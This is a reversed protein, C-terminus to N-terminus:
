ILSDRLGSLVGKYVDRMVFCSASLCIMLHLIECIDQKAKTHRERVCIFVVLKQKKFHLSFAFLKSSAMQCLQPLIISTFLVLVLSRFIRGVDWWRGIKITYIDTTLSDNPRYPPQFFFTNNIVTLWGTVHWSPLSQLQSQDTSCICVKAWATGNVYNCLAMIPDHIQVRTIRLHDSQNLHALGVLQRTEKWVKCV